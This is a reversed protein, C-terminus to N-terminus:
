TRAAAVAILPDAAQLAEELAADLGNNRFEPASPAAPSKFFPQDTPLARTAALIADGVDHAGGSLPELVGGRDRYCKAAGKTAIYARNNSLLVVAVGSAYPPPPAAAALRQAAAEDATTVKALAAKIGELAPTALDGEVAALLVMQGRAEVSSCADPGSRKGVVLAGYLM